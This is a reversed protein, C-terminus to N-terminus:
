DRTGKKDGTIRGLYSYAKPIGMETLTSHRCYGDILLHHNGILVLPWIVTRDQDLVRRLESTREKLRDKFRQGTKIDYSEMIMPNLRIDCVNAVELKWRRAALSDIIENSVEGKGMSIFDTELERRIVTNVYDYIDDPDELVRYKIGHLWSASTKNDWPSHKAKGVQTSESM